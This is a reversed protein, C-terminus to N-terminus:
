CLCRAAQWLSQRVCFLPQSGILGGVQMLDEVRRRLEGAFEVREAPRAAFAQRDAIM